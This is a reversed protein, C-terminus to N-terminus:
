IDMFHKFVYVVELIGYHFLKILLHLHLYIQFHNFVLMILQILRYILYILVHGRFTHRTKGSAVDFVKCTHDM